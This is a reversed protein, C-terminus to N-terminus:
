FIKIKKLHDALQEMQQDTLTHYPPRRYRRTLGFLELIGHIGADFSGELSILYDFLPMDYDRIVARAAELDNTQIAKWYRWAVYRDM